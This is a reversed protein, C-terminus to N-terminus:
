IMISDDRTCSILNGVPVGSLTENAKGTYRFLGEGGADVVTWSCTLSSSCVM